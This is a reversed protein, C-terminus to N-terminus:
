GAKLPADPGNNKLRVGTVLEAMPRPAYRNFILSLYSGARKGATSRPDKLSLSIKKGFDNRPGAGFNTAAAMSTTIQKDALGSKVSQLIAQQIFRNREGPTEGADKVYDSLALMGRKFCELYHASEGYADTQTLKEILVDMVPQGSVKSMAYAGAIVQGLVIKDQATPLMIKKQETDYPISGHDFMKITSGQVRCQAGHRDYDYAGGRLWIHLEAALVARAVAQRYKRDEPTATPLDLFHEGKAIETEKFEKGFNQLAATSINFNYGDVAVSIGNYLTEAVKIQEAAIEFDSEVASMKRANSLINILPAWMRNIQSLKEATKKFVGFQHASEEGVDERALTLATSESPYVLEVTYGYSGAGLQRGVTPVPRGARPKYCDKVRGIMDWRFPKNYNSKSSMLDDRLQVLDPEADPLSQLYSHIAQLIKGGAAGSRGLVQSLIQGPRLSGAGDDRKESATILAAFTLRQLPKSCQELHTTLILRAHDMYPQGQPLIKDMAFTVAKDFKAQSDEGIPFLVREIYIARAAFPLAWFNKYINHLANIRTEEPIVIGKEDKDRQFIYFIDNSYKKDLKPDMLTTMFAKTTEPALPSTLFELLANRVKPEDGIRELVFDNAAAALNGGTGRRLFHDILKDRVMFSTDAQAQTEELLGNLMDVAQGMRANEIIDSAIAGMDTRKKDKVPLHGQLIAGQAAVWGNVAWNRFVPDKLDNKCLLNRFIETKRVPDDIKDIAQRMLAEYEAKEKPKRDFFSTRQANGFCLVQYNKILDEPERNASTADKFMFEIQRDMLRAYDNIHKEGEKERVMGNSMFSLVFDSDFFSKLDGETKVSQGCLTYLKEVDLTEEKKLKLYAYIETNVLAKRLDDEHGNRYNEALTNLLGVARYLEAASQPKKYGFAKRFDFGILDEPEAGESNRWRSMAMLSFTEKEPIIDHDMVFKLYPTNATLGYQDTASYGGGGRWSGGGGSTRVGPYARFNNRFEGILVTLTPKEDKRDHRDDLKEAFFEALAPRYKGPDAKLLEGMKECFAKQFKDGGIATTIQPTLQERYRAIFGWFDTEMDQWAVKPLLEDAEEDRAKLYPEDNSSSFRTRKPVERKVRKISHATINGEADFSLNEPKYGFWDWKVPHPHIWRSQGAQPARTDNLHFRGLAEAITVSTKSWNQLLNWPLSCPNGARLERDLEDLAPINFDPWRINVTIPSRVTELYAGVTNIVGANMEADEPTKAEMFAQMAIRLDALPGIPTWGNTSDQYPGYGMSLTCFLSDIRDNRYGYAGLSSKGFDECPILLVRKLLPDLVRPSEKAEKVNKVLKTVESEFDDFRTKHDDFSLWSLEKDWLESLLGVKEEIPLAAYNRQELYAPVVATHHVTSVSKKLEEDLPTLATNLPKKSELYALVDEVHRRRTPYSPHPETAEIASKRQRNYSPYVKELMTLMASPNYGGEQLLKVAWADASSEEPNSNAHAGIREFIRHHTLEHAIVAALEDETEFKDIAGKSIVVIPPKAGTLICAEADDADSLAFRFDRTKAGTNGKFLRETIAAMKEQFDKSVPDDADILRYSEHVSVPIRGNKLDDQIEKSKFSPRSRSTDHFSERRYSMMGGDFRDHDRYPPGSRPHLPGRNYRNILTEFEGEDVPARYPATVVPASAGPLFPVLKPVSLPKKKSYRKFDEGLIGAIDELSPDAM